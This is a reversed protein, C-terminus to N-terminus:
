EELRNEKSFREHWYKIYLKGGEEIREIIDVVDYFYVYGNEYGTSRYYETKSDRKIKYLSPYSFGKIYEKFVDELESAKKYRLKIRGKHLLGRNREGIKDVLVVTILCVIFLILIVM